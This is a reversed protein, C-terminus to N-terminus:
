LNMYLQAIQGTSLQVNSL